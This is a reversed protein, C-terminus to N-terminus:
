ETRARRLTTTRQSHGHGACQRGRRGRCSQGQGEGEKDEILAMAASITSGEVCAWGGVAAMGDHGQESAPTAISSGLAKAKAVKTALAAPRFPMVALQSGYATM